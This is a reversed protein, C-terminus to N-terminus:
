TAGGTCCRVAAFPLSRKRKCACIVPQQCSLLCHPITWRKRVMLLFKRAAAPQISLQSLHQRTPSKQKYDDTDGHKWSGSHDSVMIFLIGGDPGRRNSEVIAYKRRLSVLPITLGRNKLSDAIDHLLHSNIRIRGMIFLPSRVSDWSGDYRRNQQPYDPDGGVHSRSNWIM